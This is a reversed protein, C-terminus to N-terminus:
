KRNLPPKRKRRYIILLTFYIKLINPRHNISIISNDHSNGYYQNTVSLEFLTNKTKLKNKVCRNDNNLSPLNCFYGNEDGWLRLSNRTKNPLHCSIFHKTIETGGAM